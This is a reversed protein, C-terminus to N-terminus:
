QKPLHLLHPRASSLINIPASVSTELGKMCGLVIKQRQSQYEPHSSEYKQEVPWAQLKQETVPVTMGKSCYIWMFGGKQLNGQDHCKLGDNSFYSLFTFYWLVSIIKRRYKIWWLKIKTQENSISIERVVQIMYKRCM